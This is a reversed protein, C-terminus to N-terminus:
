CYSRLLKCWKGYLDVYISFKCNKNIWVVDYISRKNIGIGVRFCFMVKFGIIKVRGSYGM